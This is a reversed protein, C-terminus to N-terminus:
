KEAKWGHMQHIQKNAAWISVCTNNVKQIKEHKSVLFIMLLSIVNVLSALYLTERQEGGMEM